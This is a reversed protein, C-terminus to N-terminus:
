RVIAVRGVDHPEVQAHAPRHCAAPKVWVQPRSVVMQLGAELHVEGILESGGVPGPHGHVEIADGEEAARRPLQRIAEGDGALDIRGRRIGGRAPQHDPSGKSGSGRPLAVMCGVRRALKGTITSTRRRPMAPVATAWCGSGKPARWPPAAADESTEAESGPRSEAKPVLNTGPM